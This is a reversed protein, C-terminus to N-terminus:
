DALFVVLRNTSTIRAAMMAAIGEHFRFALEPMERQLRVLSARSLCWATMPSEVVVSANRPQDLFFAVEGVVAGPGITAIRVPAAGTGTVTVAGRGSGVFYMEDCPLGGEVLFEGTDLTVREFYRGLEVALSSDKVIGFTLEALGRPGGVDLNPALRALVQNECWVLGHDIDRDIRLGAGAVLGGRLLARKVQENMGTLVITAGRRSVVQGLRIFSVVASSDVGTVHKFDIILFRVLDSLRNEINKRLRDSSGFFIFGQLQVILIADGHLRLSERREESTEFTSQYDRGTLVHRVSDIRGYEVVFLVVAAVLGVFIGTTFSVLVIVLFILVVILYEWRPLRRATSVLWEYTLAAGIWVLLSGLLPTPVLDLALEGLFLVCGTVAAVILGVLRNAAGLRTALLSLSVAPYGPIGGGAGAALNQWGVSRLEQDLDLDRGTDLEIGTANMLLAMVTVIVIGPLVIASASIADWDVVAFDAPRMPPWLGSKPVPVVWGAERLAEAPIALVTVVLNYAILAVLLAVPFVLPNQSRSQLFAILGAFAVGLACKAAVGPEVLLHLSALGIFDGAIVSLGGQLILWGTGALFGATVPFPVFRILRGLRFYGLVLLVAGTALTAVAAAVVITAAIDRPPAVGSMAATIAAAPGAIAVVPIEESISVVGRIPSTLAAIAAVVMTTFLAMGLAISVFDHMEGFFLLNGLSLSLVVALFGCVLGAAVTQVVHHIPFPATVSQAEISM